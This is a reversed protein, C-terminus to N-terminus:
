SARGRRGFRRRRNSGQLDARVGVGTPVPDPDGEFGAQIWGVVVARRDARQDGTLALLRLIRSNLDRVDIPKAVYEDAGAAIVEGRDAEDFGATVVLVPVDADTDLARIGSILDVGRGDRLRLDVLVM